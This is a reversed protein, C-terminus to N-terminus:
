NTSKPPKITAELADMLEAKDVSGAGEAEQQTIFDPLRGQEIADKLTLPGSQKM